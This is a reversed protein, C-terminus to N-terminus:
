SKDQQNITMQWFQPRLERDFAWRMNQPLINFICTKIQHRLFCTILGVEFRFPFSPRSIHSRPFFYLFIVFTQGVGNEIM